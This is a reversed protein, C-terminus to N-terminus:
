VAQLKPRLPQAILNAVDEGASLVSADDLHAYRMTTQLQTHGLLKGVMQIPVGASVARSAYTHRLDHIRVDNLNARSRIRRWPRQLDTLHSGELKGTIVYPNLPDQEIRSLVHRAADTLVVKRRGTKSDPLDIYRDKIFAWQLTQIEKLRCGTLCLLRIANIAPAMDPSEVEMEDMVKYLRAQELETLYREHREERYKAVHRCPNAGEPRVGWIEALNFMKSLVGLTRNAQYPIHKHVQHLEAIDSRGVDAVKMKGMAPNIFKEVARKYEKATSEKCREAVHEKLFREGLEAVTAAQRYTKRELSPDGGDDIHVFLARAKKRADDPTMKGMEGFTHKRQSGKARYYVAFSKRGSPLVRVVYGKIEDDWVEYLTDKPKLSDIVRKTLKPM